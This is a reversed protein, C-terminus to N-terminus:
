KRALPERVSEKQLITGTGPPPIMHKIKQKARPKRSVPVTAPGTKNGNLGGHKM